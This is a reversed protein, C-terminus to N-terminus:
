TARRQGGGFSAQNRSAFLGRKQGRPLPLSLFFYIFSRSFSPPPASHPSTLPAPKPINQGIVLSLPGTFSTFEFCFCCFKLRHAIIRCCLSLSSGCPILPCRPLKPWPANLLSVDLTDSGLRLSMLSWLRSPNQDRTTCLSLPDSGFPIWVFYHIFYCCIVSRSSLHFFLNFM